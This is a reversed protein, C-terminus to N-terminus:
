RLRSAAPASASAGTTITSFPVRSVSRAMAVVSASRVSATACCATAEGATIKTPRSQASAPRSRGCDTMTWRRRWGAPRVWAKSSMVALASAARHALGGFDGHEGGVAEAVADDHEEIELAGPALVERLGHDRAGGVLDPRQLIAAGVVGLVVEYDLGVEDLHALGGAAENGDAVALAHSDRAGADEVVHRAVDRRRDRGRGHNSLSVVLNAIATRTILRTRLKDFSAGCVGGVGLGRLEM